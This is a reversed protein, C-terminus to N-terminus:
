DSFDHHLVDRQVWTRFPGPSLSGGMHLSSSTNAPYDLPKVHTVSKRSYKVWEQGMRVDSDAILGRSRSVDIQVAGFVVSFEDVHRFIINKRIRTNYVDSIGLRNICVHFSGNPRKNFRAHPNIVCYDVNEISLQTKWFAGQGSKMCPVLMANAFCSNDPYRRRGIRCLDRDARMSIKSPKTLVKIFAVAKDSKM